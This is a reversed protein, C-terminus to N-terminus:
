EETGLRLPGLGKGMRRIDEMIGSDTLRMEGRKDFDFFSPHVGYKKAYPTVDHTSNPLLPSFSVRRARSKPREGPEQVEGTAGPPLSEAKHLPPLRARSAGPNEEYAEPSVLVHGRLVAPASAPRWRVPPGGGLDDQVPAGQCRLSTPVMTLSDRRAWPLSPMMAALDEEELSGFSTPSGLPRLSVVAVDSLLPLDFLGDRRQLIGPRAMVPASQQGRSGPRGAEGLRPLAGLSPPWDGSETEAAGAGRVQDIVPRSM